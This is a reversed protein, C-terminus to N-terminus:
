FILKSFVTIRNQRVSHLLEVILQFFFILRAQTTAVKYNIPNGVTDRASSYKYVDHWKKYRKKKAQIAKFRKYDLSANKHRIKVVLGIRDRIMM